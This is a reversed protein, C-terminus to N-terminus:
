NRSIPRLFAGSSACGVRLVNPARLVIYEQEQALNPGRMVPGAARPATPGDPFKCPTCWRRGLYADGYDPEHSACVARPCPGGGRRSSNERLLVSVPRGPEPMSLWVGSRQGRLSTTSALWVSAPRHARRVQNDHGSEPRCRIGQDRLPEQILGSDLRHHPSVIGTAHIRRHAVDRQHDPGLISVLGALRQPRSM